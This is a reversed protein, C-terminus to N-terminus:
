RIFDSVSMGPADWPNSPGYDGNTSSRIYHEDEESDLEIEADNVVREVQCWECMDSQCNSCIISKAHRLKQFEDERDTEYLRGEYLLYTVDEEESPDLTEILYDLESFPFSWRNDDEIPQETALKIKIM